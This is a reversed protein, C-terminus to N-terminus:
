GNGPEPLAWQMEDEWCGPVRLAITRRSGDELHAVAVVTVYGPVTKSARAVGAGVVDGEGNLLVVRGSTTDPKLTLM